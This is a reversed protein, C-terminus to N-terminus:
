DDDEPMWEQGNVFRIARVGHESCLAVLELWGRTDRVLRSQDYAYLYDVGGAEIRDRLAQYGPRSGLKERSGSVHWDSYVDPEDLGDRSIRALIEGQQLEWSLERESPRSKRLYAIIKGM